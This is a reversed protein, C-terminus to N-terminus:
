LNTKRNSGVLYDSANDSMEDTSEIRGSELYKELDERLFYLRNGKKCYTIEGKFVKTRITTKKLDLFEAAEDIKLYKKQHLHNSSLLLDIKKECGMIKKWLQPILDLKEEITMQKDMM